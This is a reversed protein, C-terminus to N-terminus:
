RVDTVRRLSSVRRAINIKVVATMFIIEMLPMTTKEVTNKIIKIRENRGGNIKTWKLNNVM